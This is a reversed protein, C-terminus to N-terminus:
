IAEEIAEAENPTAADRVRPRFAHQLTRAAVTLWFLALLAFLVLSAWRFIPTGLARNLLDSGGVFVGLPFTLGWWGLNFPLSRKRTYHLTMLGSMVLWWLGFGWLILAALTAAGQLGGAMRPFALPSAHALLMLGMIGTGLTGLTIWTSIAFEKAPLKHIALRMFLIGLVLFALPVSLAWFVTAVLYLDQRQALSTLHPLWLGASAAAVEGPVIPMLWVATMQGLGHEHRTFMLYPIVIVSALALLANFLWLGGGIAIARPGLLHPGIDFFGNVVTTLAMPVAGFFLSEVSHGLIRKIGQWDKAFRWGLGSMFTAFLLMNILWLLTGFGKLWGPAGPVLYADLAVIGTGMTVTFWKPTIKNVM